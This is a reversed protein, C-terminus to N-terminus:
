NTARADAREEIAVSVLTLAQIFAEEVFQGKASDLVLV